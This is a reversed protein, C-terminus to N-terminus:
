AIVRGLFQYGFQAGREQTGFKAKITVDPIGAVDTIPDLQQVGVFACEECGAAMRGPSRVVKAAQGKGLRRFPCRSPGPM